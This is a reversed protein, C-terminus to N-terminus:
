FPACALRTCDESTTCGGLAIVLAVIAVLKM